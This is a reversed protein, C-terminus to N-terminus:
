KISYELDSLRLSHVWVPLWRADMPNSALVVLHDPHGSPQRVLQVAPERQSLLVLHCRVYGKSNTMLPPNTSILGM